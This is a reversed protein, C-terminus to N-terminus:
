ILCILHHPGGQRGETPDEGMGPSVFVSISCQVRRVSSTFINRWCHIGVRLKKSLALESSDASYFTTHGDLWIGDDGIPAGRGVTVNTREMLDLLFNNLCCCTIFVKECTQIDRYYLGDNLVRWRKKLIGFTCEVDKRVSEVNTSFYGEPSAVSTRTFPCITTPWRLYGNDQSSIDAVHRRCTPSMGFHRRIEDWTPLTPSM